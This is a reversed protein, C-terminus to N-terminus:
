ASGGLAPEDSTSPCAPATSGSVVTTATLVALPAVAEVPEVTPPPNLKPIAAAGSSMRDM